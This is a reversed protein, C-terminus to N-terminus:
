NAEYYRGELIELHWLFWKFDEPYNKRMMDLFPEPSSCFIHTQSATDTEHETARPDRKIIFRAEVGENFFIKWEVRGGSVYKDISLIRDTSDTDRFISIYKNISIKTSLEM